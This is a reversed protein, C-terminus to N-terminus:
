VHIEKQGRNRRIINRGTVVLFEPVGEEFAIMQSAVFRINEELDVMQAKDSEQEAREFAAGLKVLSVDRSEWSRRMWVIRAKGWLREDGYEREAYTHAAAAARLRDNTEIILLQLVGLKPEAGAEPVFIKIRYYADADKHTNHYRTETLEGHAGVWEQAAKLLTVNQPVGAIGANNM